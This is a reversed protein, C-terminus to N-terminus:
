SIRTRFALIGSIALKDGNLLAEFRVEGPGDTWRILLRDGPRVLALFKVSRIEGSRCAGGAEIASLIESLLVAGPIIPNGAFHGETAPHAPDIQREVCIWSPNAAM